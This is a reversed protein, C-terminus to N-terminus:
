LLESCNKHLRFIAFTDGDVLEELSNQAHYTLSSKKPPNVQSLEM